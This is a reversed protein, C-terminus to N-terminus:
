LHHGQRQQGQQFTMVLQEIVKLSFAIQEAEPFKPLCSADAIPQTVSGLSQFLLGKTAISCVAIARDYAKMGYTTKM